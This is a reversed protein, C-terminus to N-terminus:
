LKMPKQSIGGLFFVPCLRMNLHTSTHCLNKSRSKYFALYQHLNIVSFHPTNYELMRNMVVPDGPSFISTFYDIESIAYSFQLYFTVKM